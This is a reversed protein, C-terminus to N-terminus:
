SSDDDIFFAQLFNSLPEVDTVSSKAVPVTFESLWPLSSERGRKRLRWALVGHSQLEWRYIQIIGAAVVLASVIIAAYLLKM